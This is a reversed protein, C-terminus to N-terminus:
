SNKINANNTRIINNGLLLILGITMTLAGIGIWETISTILHSSGISMNNMMDNEKKEEQAFALNLTYAVMIPAMMLFAATLFFSIKLNM